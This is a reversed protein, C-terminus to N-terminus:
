MPRDATATIGFLKGMELLSVPVLGLALAAASDIASLTQLHLLRRALPVYPLALQLAASSAVVALLHVNTFVGVQWYLLRRSRATFARFIECFVLTSFAV